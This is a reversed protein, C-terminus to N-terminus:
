TLDAGNDYEGLKEVDEEALVWSKVSNRRALDM